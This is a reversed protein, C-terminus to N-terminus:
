PIPNGQTCFLLKGSQAYRQLEGTFDTFHRQEYNLIANM